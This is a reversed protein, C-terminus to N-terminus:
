LRGALLKVHAIGTKLVAVGEEDDVHLVVEDGPGEGDRVAGGHDLREIARDIGKDVATQGNDGRAVPM